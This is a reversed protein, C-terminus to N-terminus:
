KFKVFMPRLQPPLSAPVASGEWHADEVCHVQGSVGESPLNQLFRDTIIQLYRMARALAHFVSGARSALAARPEHPATSPSYTSHFQHSLLTLPVVIVARRPVVSSVCKGAGRTSSISHLCFKPVM